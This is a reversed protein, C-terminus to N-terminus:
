DSTSVDSNTGKAVFTHSEFTDINADSGADIEAIFYQEQNDPNVWYITISENYYHNRFVVSKKGTPDRRKPSSTVRGTNKVNGTLPDIEIDVSGHISLIVCVLVIFCIHFSRM